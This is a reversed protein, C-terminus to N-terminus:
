PSPGDVLPDGSTCTQTMMESYSTAKCLCLLPLTSTWVQFTLAILFNDSEMGPALM